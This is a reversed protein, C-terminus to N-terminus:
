QDIDADTGGLLENLKKSHRQIERARYRVESEESGGIPPRTKAEELDKLVRFIKTETDPRPTVIDKEWRLLSTSAVGMILALKRQTLGLKARAERIRTGVTKM